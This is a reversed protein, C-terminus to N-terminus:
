NIVQFKMYMISKECCSLSYGRGSGRIVTFKFTDLDKGLFIPTQLCLGNKSESVPRRSVKTSHITVDGRTDLVLTWSNINGLPCIGFFLDLLM